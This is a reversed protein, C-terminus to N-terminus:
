DMTVGVEIEISGPNVINAQREDHEEVNDIM